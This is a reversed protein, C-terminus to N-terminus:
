IIRINWDHLYRLENEQWTSFNGNDSKITIKGNRVSVVKGLTGRYAFSDPHPNSVVVVSGTKINSMIIHAM